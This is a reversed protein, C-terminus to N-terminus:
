RRGTLFRDLTLRDAEGFALLVLTAAAVAISPFFLIQSDDASLLYLGLPDALYRWLSFAGGVLIALQLPYAIRRLLGLVVLIGILLEAAGFALQLAQGAGLGGYYHDALGPGSTPKLLRLSGWVMLLLGTGARLLLLSVPQLRPLSFPIFLSM